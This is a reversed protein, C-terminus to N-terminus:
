SSAPNLSSNQHVAIQPFPIGWNRSQCVSVCLANIQDELDLKRSAVSGEFDVAIRYDLSSAAAKSFTVQVGSLGGEKLFADLGERIAAEFIAPIEEIADDLLAYDIGFMVKIQFNKSLNEPHLSLFEATPFVKRSGGVLELEVHDPTQQLSQGFTEDSLQVWDGKSCPFWLENETTPRSHMTMLTDLPLRILGGELQPNILDTYPSVRQVEWSIGNFLAREGARVTGLNLMMKAQNLYQPIANKATWVMGFILLVSLTLLAWDNVLWLVMLFALISGVVIAIMFLLNVLRGAFTVKCSPLKARDRFVFRKLKSLLIGVSVAALVGALLHVGRNKFIDSITASLADMMSPQESELKELQYQAASLKTKLENSRDQWRAMEKQLTKKLSTDKTESITDELNRIAESAVEFQGSLRKVAGRLQDIEQQSSTADKMERILPELATGLEERFSLKQEELGDLSELEVGTAITSIEDLTEETEKALNEAQEELKERDTPSIERDSLSSDLEKKEERLTLLRENLLLLTQQRESPEETEPKQNEPPTEQATLPAAGGLLIALFILLCSQRWHGASLRRVRMGVLTM